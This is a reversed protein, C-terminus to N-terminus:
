REVLGFLSQGATVVRAIARGPGTIMLRATATGDSRAFGFRTLLACRDLAFREITHGDSYARCWADISALTGAKEVVRLMTLTFGWAVLTWLTFVALLSGLGLFIAAALEPWEGIDGLALGAIMVGTALAAAILFRRMPAAVRLPGHSLALILFPLLCSAAIASLIPPAPIFNL